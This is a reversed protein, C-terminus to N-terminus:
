EGDKKVEEVDPVAEVEPEGEQQEEIVAEVEPEAEQSDEPASDVTLMFPASFIVTDGYQVSCRYYLGDQATSATFVFISRDSGLAQVNEWTEGTDNSFQWQYSVDTSINTSIIFNVREGAIVAMSSPQSTIYIQEQYIGLTDSIYNDSPAVLRPLCACFMGCVVAVTFASLVNNSM